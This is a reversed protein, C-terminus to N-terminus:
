VGFVDNLRETVYIAKISSIYSKTPHQSIAEQPLPKKLLVLQEQTLKLM